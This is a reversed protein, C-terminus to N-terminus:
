RQQVGLASLGALRSGCRSCTVTLANVPVPITNGCSCLVGREHNGVPVAPTADSPQPM